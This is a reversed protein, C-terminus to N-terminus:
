RLDGKRFIHKTYHKLENMNLVDFLFALLLYIIGAILCSFIIEFWQNLSLTNTLVIISLCFGTLPFITKLWQKFPINIEVFSALKYLSLVWVLFYSITTALAAGEIGLRPILFFNAAANILAALLIIKTVVQPKGIGSIINNDMMAMLFFFVGILIIQFARYGAAYDEGFFEGLFFRAFIFLVAIIPATFIFLYRHMLHIGQSLRKLDKKVWLETSMPFIISGATRGVFLLMLASPLVANYIGVEQLSRFYTLFLTDLYGIIRGGIQTAFSPIAFRFLSKSINKKDEIKYNFFPYTKLLLPFYIIVLFVCVFAYAWAPSTIGFGLWSFLLILFLLIANKSLEISSYIFMRQFGQFFGKLIKFFVSFFIYFIMIKLLLSARPDKFYHLALFDALLFFIISLILSGFIQISFASVLATKIKQVKEAAKFETIHRVLSEQFGLDRFFLFFIVVTWVAYFLGYEATTLNRALVLRTVYSVLSALISIIFSIAIGSVARKLYSVMRPM